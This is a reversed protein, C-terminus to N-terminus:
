ENNVAWIILLLNSLVPKWREPLDRKNVWDSFDKDVENLLGQKRANFIVLCSAMKISDYKLFSQIFSRPDRKYEEAYVFMLRAGCDMIPKNLIENAGKSFSTRYYQTM